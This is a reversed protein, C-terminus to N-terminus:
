IEEDGEEVDNEILLQDLTMYEEEDFERDTTIRAVEARLSVLDEYLPDNAPLYAM